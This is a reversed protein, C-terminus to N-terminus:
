LKFILPNFAKSVLLVEEGIRFQRAEEEDVVVKVRNQGVWVTLVFAIDEKQIDLIRGIFRFKGSLQAPGLVQASSGMKKIRGKELVIVQDALGLIENRDHSVMLITPGYSQHLNKLYQQLELRMEPDLASLPEDLLLLDTRRMLSRALVVRQQQGGSLQHPLRHLLEGLGMVDLIEELARRNKKDSLAFVLNQEVNMHPFLAYDQFLFGLNRKRTPLSRGQLGDFWTRGEM